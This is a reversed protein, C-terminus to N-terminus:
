CTALAEAIADTVVAPDDPGGAAAVSGVSKPDFAVGLRDYVPELVAAVADHDNTLVVGAVVAVDTRVRQALGAIKGEAQLSHSGPCFSNPPEGPQADVGLDILVDRLLATADDYRQQITERGNEVPIAHVFAVTEGAFAVARGGVDRSTAPFGHQEAAEMALEYGDSRADRRGFAVQRHPQWVRALPERESAAATVIAETAGQDAEPTAARGRRIEM